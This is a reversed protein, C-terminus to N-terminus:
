LTLSISLTQLCASTQARILVDERTLASRCGVTYVWSFLSVMGIREDGVKGNQAIQQKVTDYTSDVHEISVLHAVQTLPKQQDFRGTRCSIVVSFFGLEDIGAGPCGSTNINRVHALYKFSPINGVDPPPLPNGKGDKLKFNDWELSQHTDADKTQPQDNENNMFLDKFLQKKPFIATMSEASTQIEGLETSNLGAEYNMRQGAPLAMYDSVKMPFTGTPRQQSVNFGPINLAKGEDATLKLEDPDFVIVAIWPVMSRFIPDADKSADRNAGKPADPKPKPAPPSDPDQLARVYIGPEREWPFHPDGLVIHPLIRADDQHGDPPYYSNILAPDMSFQPGMVEFQQPQLKPPKFDPPQADESSNYKTVIVNKGLANSATIRQEAYIEYPGAQLGPKYYSYLQMHNKDLLPPVIPDPDGNEQAAFQRFKNEAHQQTVKRASSVAVM